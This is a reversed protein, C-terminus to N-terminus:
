PIYLVQGEEVSQGALRNYLLLERSSLQYKEAIADLTEERQVICLRVKRFSSAGESRSILRSKWNGDASDTAEEPEAYPEPQEQQDERDRQARSSKLLSSFTLPGPEGSLSEEKSGFAIKLDAKEEATEAVTLLPGDHEELLEHVPATETESLAALGAEPADEASPPQEEARIGSQVSASTWAQQEEDEGAPIFDKEDFGQSFDDEFSPTHGAAPWSWSQTRSGAAFAQGDGADSAEQEPISWSGEILGDEGDQVRIDAEDNGGAFGAVGLVEEEEESVAEVAISELTETGTGGDTQASSVAWAETQNDAEVALVADGASGAVADEARAEDDDGGSEHRLQWEEAPSYAVTYEEQQWAPPAEVSGVGKLSLVGTINVSRMSLLDIDFNEIDVSIDDLSNVRTLPVTIEVPIAHELRQTLDDESRYLGTLLLQGYLEARDERQIVRIEPLLEVEELEAIGPLEQPLHIREYIDFRLGNSQDFV